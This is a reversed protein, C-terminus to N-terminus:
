RSKKQLEKYAFHITVEWTLSAVVLIVWSRVKEKTTNVTPDELMPTLWLKFYYFAVLLHVLALFSNIQNTIM